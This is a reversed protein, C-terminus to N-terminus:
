KTPVDCLYQILDDIEQDEPFDTEEYGEWNDVGMSNLNLLFLYGEVVKKLKEKNVMIKEM